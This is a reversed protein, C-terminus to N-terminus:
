KPIVVGLTNGAAGIKGASNYSRGQFHYTTGPTVHAFTIRTGTYRDVVASYSKWQGGIVGINYSVAGPVANWALVVSTRTKNVLRIYPGPVLGTPTPTPTPTSSTNISPPYGNPGAVPPYNELAIAQNILSKENGDSVPSGTIYKGLAAAMAATDVTSDIGAYAALVAQTWDANTAFKGPSPTWGGGSTSGVSGSSPTVYGAQEALAASDEPSGYPFGTAPDISETPTSTNGATKKSRYWVIGIIGAAGVGVVALTKKSVDGVPTKATGELM